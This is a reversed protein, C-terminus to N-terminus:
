DFTRFLLKLSKNALVNRALEVKVLCGTGLVWRGGSKNREGFIINVTKTRLSTGSFYNKILDFKVWVAM